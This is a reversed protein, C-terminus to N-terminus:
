IEDDESLERRFFTVTQTCM